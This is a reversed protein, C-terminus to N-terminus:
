GLSMRWSPIRYTSMMFDSRSSSGAYVSGVDASGQEMSKGGSSSSGQGANIIQVPSKQSREAQEIMKTQYNQQNMLKTSTHNRIDSINQGNDNKSINNITNKNMTNMFQNMKEKDTLPVVAENEHLYAVTPKTVIGGSKLAPLVPTTKMVNNINLDKIDNFKQNIEKMVTESPQFSSGFDINKEQSYSNGQNNEQIKKILSNNNSQMYYNNITNQEQLIKELPALQDKILSSFLSPTKPEQIFSKKPEIKYQDSDIQTKIINKDIDNSEFINKLKEKQDKSTEQPAITLEM